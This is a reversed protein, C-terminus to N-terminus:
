GKVQRPYCRDGLPIGVAQCVAAAEARSTKGVVAIAWYNPNMGPVRNTDVPVAQYGPKSLEAARALAQEPTMTTQSPSDLVAIWSGEPLETVIGPLPAATGPTGTPTPTGSPSPRPSGSASPTGTPGAPTSAAASPSPSRAPTGRDPDDILGFWALAVAIAGVVVGMIVGLLLNGRPASSTSSM